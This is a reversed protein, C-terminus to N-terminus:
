GLTIDDSGFLTLSVTKFDDNKENLTASEVFFSSPLAMDTLAIDVTTALAPVSGSGTLAGEVSAEYTKAYAVVAKYGGLRGRLEKKEVKRTISVKSTILGAVESAIGFVVDGEDTFVEAM